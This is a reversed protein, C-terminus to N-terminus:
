YGVMDRSGLPPHIVSAVLPKPILVRFPPTVGPTRIDINGGVLFERIGPDM